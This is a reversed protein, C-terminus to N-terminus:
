YIVAVLVRKIRDFRVKGPDKYALNDGKTVAYWGDGDSGIEVVRHIITGSAYESTFSIIDGIHIDDTSVPVIQLANAGQDIVPDMSNTDTFKAWEANEIEIIVQKQGVHIKSEEIWDHPSQREVADTGFFSSIFGVASEADPSASGSAVLSSATWGLIFVLIALM